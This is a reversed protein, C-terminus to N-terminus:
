KGGTHYDFSEVINSMHEALFEADWDEFYMWVVIDEDGDIMRDLVQDFTITSDFETLHNGLVALEIARM